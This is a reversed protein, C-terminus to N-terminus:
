EQSARLFLFAVFCFPTFSVDDGGGGGDLFSGIQLSLSFSLYLFRSLSHFCASAAADISPFCARFEIGYEGMYLPAM